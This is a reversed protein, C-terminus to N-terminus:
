VQPCTARGAGSSIHFTVPSGFWLSEESGWFVQGLYHLFLTIYNQRLSLECMIISYKGINSSSLSAEKAEKIRVWFWLQVVILMLMLTFDFAM